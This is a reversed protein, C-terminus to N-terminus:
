DKERHAPGLIELGDPGGIIAGTCLAVFLGHEVVGPVRKLAYALVEPEPIRGFACDLIFNGQDTLFPEVVAGTRDGRPVVLRHDKVEAILGAAELDAVVEAIVAGGPEQLRM